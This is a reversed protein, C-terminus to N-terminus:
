LFKGDPLEEWVIHLIGNVADTNAVGTLTAVKIIYDGAPLVQLLTASSTNTTSGNTSATRVRRLNGESGGTVTGTPDLATFVTAQPVYPADSDLPYGPRTPLRNRGTVTLPTWTGGITGGVVSSVRAAGSDLECTVGQLFFAVPSTFRLYLTQASTKIIEVYSRFQRGLILGTDQVDTKVRSHDSGPRHSHNIFKNFASM